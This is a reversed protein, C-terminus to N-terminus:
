AFEMLRFPYLLSHVTLPIDNVINGINVAERHEFWHGVLLKIAAKIGDPVSDPTAGYGVVANIQVPNVVESRILPWTQNYALVVRGPQSYTDVQYVSASLTQSAGDVDTYTISSVSALPSVPIEMEDSFADLTYRITTNIFRRNTYTECWRRAAAIWGKILDDESATDVRLHAKAEDVSVPELTPNTVVILPM